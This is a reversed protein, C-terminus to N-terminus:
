VEALLKSLKESRVKEDKNSRMFEALKLMLEAYQNHSDGATTVAGAVAPQRPKIPALVPLDALLEFVEDMRPAVARFGLKENLLVAFADASEPEGHVVFVQQRVEKVLSLWNLLGNQDAHGSYGTIQEIQAGVNIEEGHIRVTKAGETLLRGLTGEAQYGVFLVTNAPNWLNHKLHHKIRGADCMGSASLIVIKKEDNLAKSEDVSKTFRIDSHDFLGGMKKAIETADQDYCEPYKIFVKTIETALPSDVVVKIGSIKKQEKLIMIDHLLDQTRELAFAPIIIKGGRKEARNFVEALEGLRQEKNHPARNRNGYTSEVVLFDTETFRDPDNLIPKNDEGLDGSFVIKRTQGKDKLEIEIFSSGLVHGANFFTVRCGAKPEFTKHREVSKLLAIANEADQTDYIPDVPELGKREARKNKQMVEIEQIHASDPLLCKLLDVTPETAYIAGKFGHKVLKPLLGTHDIHAHTILAFDVTAPDYAFKRYNNEKLTKSGQFMGCDVVFRMNDTEILYNSGTVCGAAGHFSIKM